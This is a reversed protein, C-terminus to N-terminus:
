PNDDEDDPKVIEVKPVVASGDMLVISEIGWPIGSSGGERLQMEFRIQWYWIDGRFEELVMRTPVWKWDDRDGPRLKKEIVERAAAMAKRASIPPNEDRITWKPSADMQSSKVIFVYRNDGVRSKSLEFKTDESEAGMLILASGFILKVLFGGMFVLGKTSHRCNLRNLPTSM